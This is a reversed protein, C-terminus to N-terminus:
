GLQAVGGYAKNIKEAIEEPSGKVCYRDGNQMIINSFSRGFQNTVSHKVVAVLAPNIFYPLFGDHAGERDFPILM